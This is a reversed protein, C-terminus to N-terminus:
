RADRLRHQLHAAQDLLWEMAQSAFAFEQEGTPLTEVVGGLSRYFNGIASDGTARGLRLVVAGCGCALAMRALARMMEYPASEELGQPSLVVDDAIFDEEDAHCVMLGLIRSEPQAPESEAYLLYHDPRSKLENLWADPHSHGLASLREGSRTWASLDLLVDDPVNVIELPTVTLEHM